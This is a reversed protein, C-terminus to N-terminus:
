EAIIAVVFWCSALLGVFLLFFDLLLMQYIVTLVSSRELGWGVDNGREDQLGQQPGLASFPQCPFGAVLIDHKPVDLTVKRIDGQFTPLKTAPFRWPQWPNKNCPKVHFFQAWCWTTWTSFKAPIIRQCACPDRFCICMSRVSFVDDLRVPNLICVTLTPVALTPVAMSNAASINQPFGLNEAELRKLVWVFDEWVPLSNRPLLSSPRSNHVAHFTQFIWMRPHDKM